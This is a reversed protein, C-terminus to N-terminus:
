AQDNATPGQPPLAQMEDRGLLAEVEHEPLHEWHPDGFAIREQRSLWVRRPAWSHFSLRDWTPKHGLRGKPTREEVYHELFIAPPLEEFRHPFPAPDARAGPVRGHRDGADLHDTAAGGDGHSPDPQSRRLGAGL